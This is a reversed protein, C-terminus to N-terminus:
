FLKYGKGTSIGIIIDIISDMWDIMKIKSPIYDANYIKNFWEAYRPQIYDVWGIRGRECCGETILRQREEEADRRLELYKLKKVGLTSEMLEIVEIWKKKQEIDLLAFAKSQCPNGVSSGHPLGDNVTAGIPTFEEISENYSKRLERIGLVYKLIEEKQNINVTDNM